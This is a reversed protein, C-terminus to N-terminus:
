KRQIQQDLRQQDSLRGQLQEVYKKAGDNGYDAYAKTAWQIASELKGYYEDSLAMNYAARGGTKKDPANNLVGQWIETAKAWDGTEALRGAKEMDAKFPGKAGTYFERDVTTWVPAVRAAYAAGAKYSLDDVIPNASALNKVAAKETPGTASNEGSQSTKFEDGITKTAPDYLRWGITVSIKRKATFSIKTTDRGDKTKDKVASRDTQISNYSDFMEIAAIADANYKKCIGEIEYWEVPPMFTRGSESGSLEVDTPKAQFRPTQTLVDALGAFAKKRGSRGQGFDNGSAQNAVVDIFGSSPRSRDIIAITNVHDAVVIQAPQLVRLHTTSTSCAACLFLFCCAFFSPVTFTNKM